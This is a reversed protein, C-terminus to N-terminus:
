NKMVRATKEDTSLLHKEIRTWVKAFNNKGDLETALFSLIDSEKISEHLRSAFAGSLYPSNNYDSPDDLFQLMANSMFTTKAM